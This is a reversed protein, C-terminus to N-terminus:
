VAEPSQPIGIPIGFNAFILCHRFVAIAYILDCVGSLKIRKRFYNVTSGIASHFDIRNQSRVNVYVGAIGEGRVSGIRAACAWTCPRRDAVSTVVIGSSEITLIM